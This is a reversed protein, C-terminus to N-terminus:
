QQAARREEGAQFIRNRVNEAQRQQDPMNYRVTDFVYQTKPIEFKGPNVPGAAARAVPSMNVIGAKVHNPNNRLIAGLNISPRDITPRGQNLGGMKQGMREYNSNIRANHASEGALVSGAWDIPKQLTEIFDAEKMLGSALKRLAQAAIANANKNLM